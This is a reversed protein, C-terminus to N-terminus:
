IIEQRASTYFGKILKALKINIREHEILKSNLLTAQNNWTMVYNLSNSRTINGMVLIQFIIIDAIVVQLKEPMNLAAGTNSQEPLWKEQILWLVMATVAIFVTLNKFVM